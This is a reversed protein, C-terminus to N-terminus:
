SELYQFLMPHIERAQKESIRKCNSRLYPESCTTGCVVDNPIDRLAGYADMNIENDRVWWQKKDVALVTGRHNGVNKRTAKNKETRNPYELYFTIDKM